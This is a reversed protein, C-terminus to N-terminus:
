VGNVGLGPGAYRWGPPLTLRTANYQGQDLPAM